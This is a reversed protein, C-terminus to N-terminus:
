TPTSRREWEEQEREWENSGEIIFKEAAKIWRSATRSSVGFRKIVAKNPQRDVDSRVLAAVERLLVDDVSGPGYARLVSVGSPRPRGANEEMVRGVNGIAAGLVDREAEVKLLKSFIAERLTIENALQEELRTVEAASYVHISKGGLPYTKKVVVYNDQEALRLREAAVRLPDRDVDRTTPKDAIAELIEPLEDDTSM